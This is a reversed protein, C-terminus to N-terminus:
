IYLEKTVKTVPLLTSKETRCNGASLILVTNSYLETKNQKKEQTCSIVPCETVSDNNIYKIVNNRMNGTSCVHTVSHVPSSDREKFM